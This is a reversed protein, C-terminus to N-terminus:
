KNSFYDFLMRVGFGTGGTTRYSVGKKL